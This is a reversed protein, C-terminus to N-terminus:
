SQHLSLYCGRSSRIVLNADHVLFFFSLCMEMYIYCFELDYFAKFMLEGLIRFIRVQPLLALAENVLMM